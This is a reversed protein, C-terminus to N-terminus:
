ITEECINTRIVISGKTALVKKALDRYEPTIRLKPVDGNGVIRADLKFEKLEKELYGITSNLQKVAKTLGGGKLEIFIARQIKEITMLYDCTKENQGQPFCGDVKVKRVINKSKNYLVYKKGAEEAVCESREDCYCSCQILINM